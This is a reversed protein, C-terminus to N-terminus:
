DQVGFAASNALIHNVIQAVTLLVVTLLGKDDFTQSLLPLMTLITYPSMTSSLFTSRSITPAPNVTRSILMNVWCAMMCSCIHLAEAAPASLAPLASLRSLPRLGQVLNVSGHRSTTRPKQQSEYIVDWYPFQVSLIAQTM